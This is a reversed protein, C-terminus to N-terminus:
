EDQDETEDTQDSDTIIFDADITEPKKKSFHVMTQYYLEKQLVFISRYGIFLLIFFMIDPLSLLNYFALLVAVPTLAFIILRHLKKYPIFKRLRLFPLSAVLSIFVMLLVNGIYSVGILAVMLATQLTSFYQDFTVSGDFVLPVASLPSRSIYVTMVQGKVIIAQDPIQPHIDQVTHSESLFYLAYGYLNFRNSPAYNEGGCVLTENVIACGTTETTLTSNTKYGAYFVISGVSAFLALLLLYFFAYWGSKNRYKLLDRPQFLSDKMVHYMCM